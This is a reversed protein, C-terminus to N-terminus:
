MLSQMWSIYDLKGVIRVLYALRRKSSVSENCLLLVLLILRRIGSLFSKLLCLSLSVLPPPLLEYYVHREQPKHKSVYDFAEVFV